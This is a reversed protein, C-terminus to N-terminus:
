SLPLSLLRTTLGFLIRALKKSWVTFNTLKQVMYYTVAFLGNALMGYAVGQTHIIRVRGPSLLEIGPFPYRQLFQLSYSLGALLVVFLYFCFAYMHWKITVYDIEETQKNTMENTM